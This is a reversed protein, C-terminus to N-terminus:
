NVVSNSTVTILKLIDNLMAKIVTSIVMIQIQHIQHINKTLNQKSINRLVHVLNNTLYNANCVSFTPEVLLIPSISGAYQEIVLVTSTLTFNIYFPELLTLCLISIMFDSTM